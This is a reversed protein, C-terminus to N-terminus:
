DSDGDAPKLGRASGWPDRLKGNPQEFFGGGPAAWLKRAEAAAQNSLETEGLQAQVDALGTYTRALLVVLPSRESALPEVPGALDLVQELTRRAAEPQGRQNEIVARTYLSRSLGGRYREVEPSQNRLSTFLEISTQLPEEVRDDQGAEFFAEALGQCIHALTQRYEPVENYPPPVAEMLTLARELPKVSDQPEGTSLSDRTLAYTRALIQRYQPNDPSEAVLAELIGIARRKAENAEQAHRGFRCVGSLAGYCEAMALRYEERSPSQGALESLIALSKQLCAEADPSDAALKDAGPSLVRRLFATLGMARYTEALQFQSQPSVSTAAVDRTLIQEALDYQQLATDFRDSALATNGLQNHVAALEVVYEVRGPDRRASSEYLDLARGYAEEAERFRGLRQQIDGVRRYAQATEHQWKTSDRNQEAFRDYFKLLGELVLADKKAVVPSGVDGLWVRDGTGDFTRPGPVGSLKAFVDEFAEAALALNAEARQQESEAQVRLKSERLYGASSGIIGTALLFLTTATLGALAPNRRCWRWAHEIATTRRARIPRDDLFRQLDDALGGATEYRRAPERAIAKLVITELDRPIDLAISRPRPPDRQSVQRLLRHRSTENFAPRLTLLEYLTLGLSYVDSRASTEGELQEPAMYRLTGVVDGPHTLDEQDVLKALGFDTIWAVGKDDLILNGPKIDRHLIGQQHAYHLAAAVQTGIGAVSRWYAPGRSADRDPTGPAEPREGGRSHGEIGRPQESESASESSDGPPQRMSEASRDTLPRSTPEFKGRLMARAVAM